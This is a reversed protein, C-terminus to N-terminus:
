RGRGGEAPSGGGFGGPRFGRRGSDRTGSQGNRQLANFFEIRQRIQEQMQEPTPGRNQADGSDSSNTSGSTASSRQENVTSTSTKVQSGVISALAKQVLEPSARKISVVEVAQNSETGAQDLQQVLAKVEEFLPDPASVILANSRPDVGVTIQQQEEERSRQSNGGGRGGRLARIFEEPSPQRQQANNGGRIRDSYVQRVVSAIENADSYYVPILRPPAVTQVDEPSAEQDIVQLLQEVTDLDEASGQVVLANLRADASISVAGASLIAGGGDAGMGLLSGLLGGSDGLAAGALDGLLSGGGASADSSGGGLIEQLLEAARDAKAYKLYFVTFRPGSAQLQEALTLLLAEFEDLAERDQSAIMIGGPGPAVVIEPAEEAPPEGELPTPERAPAEAAEEVQGDACLTNVGFDVAFGSDAPTPALTASASRAETAGKDPLAGSETSPNSSSEDSELDQPDRNRNGQPLKRQPSNAEPEDLGPKVTRIVASPTVLRIKNPRTTPWITEIQDLVQRAAYGSLPVMRVNGRDSQSEAFSEDLTSEGMKELLSRIQEIQAETGRVLLQRAIPDADVRPANPPPSEEGVAGFLKNIALVAAQPDVVALRIVEVQRADKQMQDITARITAHDRPRGMAVLNGTKPDITLRVDPVGAMVTQLVQLVSEPTAETIAYVELQPSESVGAGLSERGDGVDLIELIEGIQKQQEEDAQVLLRAGIPDVAIRLLGDASANQEEPLGLLQRIVVLVEDTTVHQLQFVKLQGDDRQSPESQDAAALIQRITRLKGATEVVYIQRTKSLVVLSGQPGLLKSIESEVEAPQTTQLSFLCGVLEFEGRRDLDEPAVQSVLDPPIGDELNIVMLMRGRRLLTYGKTLLVSNLLDIAEATTYQRSDTYNFTGQPPAELVLSLDAQTAFWDLVDKWPAFRFNFRLLVEGQQAVESPTSPTTNNVDVEAGTAPPLNDPSPPDAPANADAIPADANSLLGALKEWAIRQDQTLLGALKQEYEAEVRRRDDAGGRAVLSEREDLLKAVAQRQEERLGIAQATQEDALGA